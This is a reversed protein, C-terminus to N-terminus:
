RSCVETGSKLADIVSQVSTSTCDIAHVKTAEKWSMWWERRIKERLQVATMNLRQAIHEIMADNIARLSDAYDDFKDEGGYITGSLSAQHMMLSSRKTMMRYHCSQLLYFGMSYAGGDVVCFIPIKSREMQKSLLLGSPISGGNSNIEFVIAKSKLTDALRIHGIATAVTSANVDGTFNIHYVSGDEQAYLANVSTNKKTITDDITSPSATKCSCGVTVAIIGVLLSRM